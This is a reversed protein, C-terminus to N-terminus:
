VITPFLNQLFYVRQKPLVSYGHSQERSNHYWGSYPTDISENTRSLKAKM